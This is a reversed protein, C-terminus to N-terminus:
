QRNAQVGASSSASANAAGSASASGATEKVAKIDAKVAGTVETKVTKATQIGSSAQNVAAGSVSITKDVAQSADLNVTAGAQSQNNLGTQISGNGASVQSNGSLNSQVGVGAQVQSGSRLTGTAQQTTTGATQALTHVNGVAQTKIDVTKMVATNVTSRTAATAAQTSQVVAATNATANVAAQTTSSVGLGLQGFATGASLTLVIMALNQKLTKM